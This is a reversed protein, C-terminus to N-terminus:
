QIVFELSHTLFRDHGKTQVFRNCRVVRLSSLREGRVERCGGTLIVV